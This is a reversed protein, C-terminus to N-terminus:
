LMMSSNESWMKGESLVVSAMRVPSLALRFATMQTWPSTAGLLRPKWSLLRFWTMSFIPFWRHRHWVIMQLSVCDFFSISCSSIKKFTCTRM